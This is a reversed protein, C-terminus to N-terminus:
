IKGIDSRWRIPGKIQKCANESKVQAQAMNEGIGVIAIARSGCLRYEPMDASMSEVSSFFVRVTETIEPINSVVLAEAEPGDKYGDPYYEPVIYKCVTAKDEFEPIIHFLSNNCIAECIDVFDTKMIPLINMIEPDGFRCNYEIVKIGDETKIFGGYLFGKYPTDLKNNLGKLVTANILKAELLDEDTLFPLTNTNYSISGMGGTNPGTDGNYARKNDQVPFTHRITSGDTMSILSFEEGILKEEILVTGGMEILDLIYQAGEGHTDFHDGKVWVGKGGTLGDPKIVYEGLEEMFTMAEEIQSAFHIQKFKPSVDDLLTEMIVRRCFSKSSEIRAAEKHPGVCPYGNKELIDVVGCELPKEPGIITIDPDVTLAIELISNIDSLDRLVFFRKCYDSYHSNNLTSIVYTETLRKSRHVADLMCDLRGSSGILLIKLPRTTM